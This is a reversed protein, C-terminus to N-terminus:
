PAISSMSRVRALGERVWKLRAKTELVAGKMAMESYPDGAKAYAEVQLECTKLLANLHRQAAELFQIQQDIPLVKLFYARSRIADLCCSVDEMGLDFWQRLAEHGHETLLYRQERKGAEVSLIGAQKLRKLLPYVSGAGSRYASTASGVFEGVIAYATCPGKKLIIGLVTFELTSLRRDLV